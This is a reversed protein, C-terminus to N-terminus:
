RFKAQPIGNEANRMGGKLSLRLVRLSEFSGELPGKDKIFDAEIKAPLFTLIFLLYTLLFKPNRFALKAFFVQM